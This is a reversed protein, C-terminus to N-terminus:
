MYLIHTVTDSESRLHYNNSGNPEETIRKITDSLCRGNMDIHIMM